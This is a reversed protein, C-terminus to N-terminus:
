SKNGRALEEIALYAEKTIRDAGTERRSITERAVGLQKAVKAQTGLSQRIAKYKKSKSM